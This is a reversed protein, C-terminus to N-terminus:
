LDISDCMLIGGHFYTAGIALRRFSNSFNVRSGSVPRYKVLFVHRARPDSWNQPGSWIEPDRWM